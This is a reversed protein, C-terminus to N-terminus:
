DQAGGDGAADHRRVDEATRDRVPGADVVGGPHLGQQAVQPAQAVQCGLDPSAPPSPSLNDVANGGFCCGTCAGGGEFGPWVCSCGERVCACAGDVAAVQAAVRAHDRGGAPAVDHPQHRRAPHLAPDGVAVAGHHLFTRARAHPPSRPPPDIATSPTSRSQDALRLRTWQWRFFRWWCSVM